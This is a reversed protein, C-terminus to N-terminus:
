FDDRHVEDPWWTSRARWAGRWQLRLPVGAPTAEVATPEGELFLRTM